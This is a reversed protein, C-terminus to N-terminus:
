RKVGFEDMKKYLTNRAIGLERATRAINFNHKNLCDLIVTKEYSKLVSGPEPSDVPRPFVINKEMNYENIYASLCGTTIMNGDAYVFARELVNQLERVNGPWDYEVLKKMVDDEPHKVSTMMKNSINNLIYCVLLPIDNKRERLAPMRIQIVNLRYYLDERFRGNRVDDYLNRNTAAIVRVDIEKTRSSGVRCLKKDQLFRLLSVQMDAPMEGIEDLFVTGGEALEFKGARGGRKAGTFAGDEYGFLESQLLERPMAGCNLAVFPGSVGSERHIAQAMIDKGTGSEGEILINFPSHAAKRAAEKVKWFIESEGILRDFSFGNANQRNKVPHTSINQPNNNEEFVLLIRSQDKDIQVIKRKVSFRVHSNKENRISIGNLESFVASCSLLKEYDIDGSLYEDIRCGSIMNREDGTFEIFKSNADTIIGNEDLAVVIRPISNLLIGSNYMTLQEKIVTEEILRTGLSVISKIGNVVGKLNVVALFGQISNNFSFISGAVAHWDHAHPYLNEYGITEALQGTRLAIGLPGVTGNMESCRHGIKIHRNNKDALEIIDGESDFLAVVYSESIAEMAKNIDSLVPMAAEVLHRNKEQKHSVDNVSLLKSKYELNNVRYCRVWSDAVEPRLNDKDIIGSKVLLRFAKQAKRYDSGM